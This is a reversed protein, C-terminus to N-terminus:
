IQEQENKKDKEHAKIVMDSLNVNVNVNKNIEGFKLKNLDGINKVGLEMFKHTYHGPARGEMMEKERAIEADELISYQMAEQLALTDHKEGTERWFEMKKIFAGQTFTCKGKVEYNTCKSPISYKVEKGGVFGTEVRARLPCKDCKRFYNIIKSKSDPKLNGTSLLSKLKGEKTRPGTKREQGINPNGGARAM